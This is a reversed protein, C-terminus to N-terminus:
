RRRFCIRRRAFEKGLDPITASDGAFDERRLVPQQLHSALFAVQLPRRNSFFRGQTGLAARSGLIRSELSVNECVERLFGHGVFSETHTGQRSTLCLIKRRKAMDRRDAILLVVVQAFIRRLM